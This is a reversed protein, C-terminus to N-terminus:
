IISTLGHKKLRRWLTERSIGLRGALDVKRGGTEELLRVLIQREATKLMEALSGSMSFSTLKGTGKPSINIAFPLCEPGITKKQSMVVATEIIHQLERVNGPYDYDLLCKLAEQTFLLASKGFSRSFTGLFHNILLPIDDKRERLPPLIIPMSNIRYYLDERFRGERIEQLLNKRTAYIMRVNVMISENGGLREFTRSELIRLLKAQVSLPIDGIEDLFITGGDAAEFKGKRRQVAGTFAGKEYGFLESELLTEPIAACNLKIFPKDSRPSLNHLANAVLEKGTGTEGYVIVSSDTKAVNRVIEFIALMASTAGVICEFESQKRIEERLRLNEEEMRKKDSLDKFTVVCGTIAGEEIIPAATYEVYFSTGDKKWFVEEAMRRVVGNRIADIIPCEEEPYPSGDERSHHCHSHSNMGRLEEKRYGLMEAAANNLFTFSGDIDLGFIGEGATNLIIENRHHLKRVMNETKKREIAYQISRVMLNSDMQGKILYDQAGAKVAEVAIAEDSLGSLIVIPVDHATTYLRRLTALGQSDPLGLDLLVVDAARRLLHELGASLREVHELHFTYLSGAYGALMESLLHFDGIDDEILLVSINSKEQM